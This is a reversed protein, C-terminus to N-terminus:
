VILSHNERLILLHRDVTPTYDTQNDKNNKSRRESSTRFRSWGLWWLGWFAIALHTDIWGSAGAEGLARSSAYRNIPYWYVAREENQAKDGHYIRSRGHRFTGSKYMLYAATGKDILKVNRNASYVDENITCVLKGALDSLYLAQRSFM